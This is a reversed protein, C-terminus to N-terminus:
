GCRSTRGQNDIGALRARAQAIISRWEISSLLREDLSINLDNEAFCFAYTQSAVAHGFIDDYGSFAGDHMCLAAVCQGESIMSSLADVVAHPINDRDKFVIENLILGLPWDTEFFKFTRCEEGNHSALNRFADELDAVRFLGYCLICYNDTGEVLLAHEVRM